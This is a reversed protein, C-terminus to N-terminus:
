KSEKKESKLQEVDVGKPVPMDGTLIAKKQAEEVFTPAEALSYFKDRTFELGGKAAKWVPVEIVGDPCDEAQHGLNSSALKKFESNQEKWKRFSEADPGSEIINKKKAIDKKKLMLDRGLKEDREINKVMEELLITDKNYFNTGERQEKFSDFFNWKGSTATFVETIVEDSHKKKFAEADEPSSHWSYPNIALELDPKECYLDNVVERLQEYHSQYYTKFKGYIDHPPIINLVNGVLTPDKPAVTQDDPVEEEYTEDVVVVKKKGSSPDTITKKVKRTKQVKKTKPTQENSVCKCKSCLQETFIVKEKCDDPKIEPGLNGDLSEFINELARFDKDTKKLHDTALRAAFTNIPKRSKDKRNPIYSSRVHEDPNFQFLEELFSKVIVRKEMWKRNFEYDYKTSATGKELVLKPTDVKSNDELYDYVSTVPVNNPVQWEDLARNIYGIFATIIFKKYYEHSIQTISFNLYNDSGQITRGYPNMQKRFELLQDEPLLALDEPSIRELLEKMTPNKPLPENKFVEKEKTENVDILGGTEQEIKNLTQDLENVSNVKKNKKNKKNNTSSM